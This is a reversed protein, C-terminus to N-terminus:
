ADVTAHEEGMLIRLAASVEIVTEHAPITMQALAEADTVKRGKIVYTDHDTRIILPPKTGDTATLTSKSLHTMLRIPVEVCTEDIKLDLRALIKPDSVKWGQILFTKRDTDFLTPSGGDQTEKDLFRIKM